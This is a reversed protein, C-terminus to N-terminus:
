IGPALDQGCADFEGKRGSEFEVLVLMPDAAPPPTLVTGKGLLQHMVQSGVPYFMTSSFSRDRPKKTPPPKVAESKSDKHAQVPTHRVPSPRNYNEPTPSPQSRTPLRAVVKPIQPTDLAARSIRSANSEGSVRPAAARSPSSPVDSLVSPIRRTPATKRSDYSTSPRQSGVTLSRRRQAYLSKAGKQNFAAASYNRAPQYSSPKTHARLESSKAPASDTATQDNKKKLLIELFRSLKREETRIGKATFVNVEKRWSMILETKARTMAVYCLRKEEELVVSGDGEQIAQQTPFTGDENGVLFVHDFEMGKSAHITMLKVVFREESSSEQVDTVLAVDDLFKGLPSDGFETDASNKRELCAGEYRTTAQQLERVNAKREEFQAVSDSIKDFHPLLVFEELIAALVAELSATQAKNHIGRLKVAFEKFLNYFRKSMTGPTSPAGAILATEQSDTFSFLIDLPTPIPRGPLEDVYFAEVEACYADFEQIAKDGIGRKPTEIARLMAVRDRGNYLWRLFCLCDRIEQRKYFSTASGFIVYPLNAKVCAEELARSQANTRYLVAASQDQDYKGAAMDAKITKVVFEAEARDDSMTVIRPVAGSERKPQMKKRLKDVAASSSGAPTHSIVKQAAKVINATSRYNEMLYITQVGGSRDRYEDEFEHLSGVHAGRWSYISQDADGVILLSDTALLKVIEMQSRSTDQFEDVLVHPWHRRLRERVERYEQLLELTFYMLDDFDLCNHGVLKERYLPLVKQAIQKAKSLPKNVSSTFPDEGVAIKAKCDALVSLVPKPKLKYEELDIGAEILCDKLLRLQGAEDIVAFSGDLYAGRPMAKVLSPLAALVDGNWRLIKACVSHFTGLTVRDLLGQVKRDVPNSGEIVVDDSSQVRSLIGPDDQVVVTKLLKNLREQMEGAAKRTFTVGLIRDHRSAEMLLYAMRCTLVRTKGSGPGAIVRSISHPPQTVAQVQSPNLDNLIASSSGHYSRHHEINDSTVDFKLDTSSYLTSFSRRFRRSLIPYSQDLIYPEGNQLYQLNSHAGTRKHLNSSLRPRFNTHAVFGKVRRALMLHLLLLKLSKWAWLTM